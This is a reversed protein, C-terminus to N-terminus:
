MITTAPTAQNLPHLPEGVAGWGGGVSDSVHGPVAVTCDISPLAVATGNSCGCTTPPEAGTVVVHEGCDPLENM